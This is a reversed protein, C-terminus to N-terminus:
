VAGKIRKKLHPHSKLLRKCIEEWDKDRETVSMILNIYSNNSIGLDERESATMTIFRWRIFAIQFDQYYDDTIEKEYGREKNLIKEINRKSWVVNKKM